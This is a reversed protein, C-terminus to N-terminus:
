RKAPNPLAAPAMNYFLSSPHDGVCFVPGGRMGPLLAGWYDNLGLAGAANWTLGAVIEATTMGMHLAALTGILPLNQTPCSGPNFDSALAVRAGGDLLARAPAPPERLYLATGPLLVGVTKSEALARIGAPSVKLLHDVSLAGLEAALEAAGTLSLEEGHIRASLGLDLGAKLIVRCESLSFYGSDCFVDVSRALKRKAVLPLIKECILAVYESSKGRFEPPIAHAAMCTPYVAIGKVKVSRLAELSKVEDKLSLGYGSKAEMLRVGFSHATKLREQLLDTLRSKSAARTAKMSNLIGGGAAAIEQYTAGQMRLQFERSRDGDFIPHTHCDVLGPYAVFGRGSVPRWASTRFKRPVSKTTGAWLVVNNKTDWAVAGDNIIGLHGETPRIGNTERMPANTVLCSINKYLIGSM